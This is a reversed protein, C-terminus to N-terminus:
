KYQFRKKQSPPPRYIVSLRLSSKNLAINCDIYEFTSFHGDSSSTLMKFDINAKYIIAVGGGRTKGPRPVQQIRYGNPVLESSWTKDVTSGLWTETFAVLDFDNSLIFDCIAITKNKVSRPNISCIKLNKQGKTINLAESKIKKINRINHTNSNRNSIRKTQTVTPIEQPLTQLNKENVGQNNDWTRRVNIQGSRKGRKCKQIHLQKIQEMVIPNPRSGQATVSKGINYLTSRKYKIRESIMATPM